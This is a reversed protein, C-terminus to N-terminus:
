LLLLCMTPVCFEFLITLQIFYENISHVFEDKLSFIYRTM